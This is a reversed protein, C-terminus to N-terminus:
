AGNKAISRSIGKRTKSFHGKTDVHVLRQLDIDLERYSRVVVDSYVGRDTPADGSQYDLLVYTIDLKTRALAIEALRVGFAKKSIPEGVLMFPLALVIVLLGVLTKM